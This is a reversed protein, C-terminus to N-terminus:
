MRSVPASARLISQPTKGHDLAIARPITTEAALSRIIRGASDFGHYELNPEYEQIIPPSRLEECAEVIARGIDHSGGNNNLAPIDFGQAAARDCIQKASLLRM